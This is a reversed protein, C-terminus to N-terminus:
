VRIVVATYYYTKENNMGRTVSHRRGYIVALLGYNQQVIATNMDRKKSGFLAGRKHEPEDVVHVLIYTEKSRQKIQARVGVCRVRTCCYLLVATATFCIAVVWLGARPM